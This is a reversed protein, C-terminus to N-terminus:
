SVKEIFRHLMAAFEARTAEGKPDFSNEPKGNIIGQITLANVPNKAYDIIDNWDGFEKDMVTDMPIKGTAQEFRYLIVALDQRTVNENQGFRGNGYGNVINNAAAWKVADSYWEDEPVDDFPNNLGKVDPSGELRYLVTVIMARSLAMNPSFLMPKISTGFMLGNTYVFMVDDYFWDSEFVDEFPNNWINTDGYFNKEPTEEKPTANDGIEIASEITSEATPESTTSEKINPPIYGAGGNYNWDSDATQVPEIKVYNSGTFTAAVPSAIKVASAEDEGAFVKYKYLAGFSPANNFAFNSNWQIDFNHAMVTISGGNIIISKGYLGNSTNSTLDLVGRNVTLVGNTKLCCALGARGHELVTLNGGIDITVSDYGFIGAYLDYINLNGEGTLELSKEGVIGWDISYDTYNIPNDPKAGIQNQGILNVTLDELSHIADSSGNKAEAGISANNLTLTNTDSNYSVNGTIGDGAIANKNADTVPIDLIYLYVPNWKAYFTKYGMDAASIATVAGGTTLDEDSYWGAFTHWAKTPMPLTLGTGYTYSDWDGSEQTGGDLNFKVAFSTGPLPLINYSSLQPVTKYAEIATYPVYLMTVNSWVFVWDGFKPPTENLFTVSVLSACGQFVDNEMTEIGNGITVFKLSSCSRFANGIITKVGDGIIVTELSGCYAFAAGSITKVGNGIIVSELSPCEAFSWDGITEVSDPIIVSVLSACGQFARESITKVSNGITVTELSPCYSFAGGSITEVSNGIIVTELSDCWSFAWDGISTVSNGITVTELSICSMFAGYKITEVSNPITISVLSTCGFFAWGDISTVSDPIIVSKLLKCNEFAGDGITEVSDGITVTIVDNLTFNGGRQTRWATTGTDSDITLTGTASDFSWGTGSFDAASATLTFMPIFTLIMAATLLIFIARKRWTTQNIKNM